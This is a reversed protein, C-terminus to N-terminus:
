IGQTTALDWTALLALLLVAGYGWTWRRITRVHELRDGRTEALIVARSLFVAGVVFAGALVGLGIQIWTRDFDSASSALARWVGLGFVAVVAPVFVRPGITQRNGVFRDVMAGDPRRQVQLALASLLVAGGVCIMEAVVHAFVLRGSGAVVSVPAAVM